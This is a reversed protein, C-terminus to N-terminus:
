RPLSWWLFVLAALALCGTSVSGVGATKPGISTGTGSIGYAKQGVTGLSTSAQASAPTMPQYTGGASLGTRLSLGAM